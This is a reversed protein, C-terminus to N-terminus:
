RRILRPDITRRDRARVSIRTGRATLMDLLDPDVGQGTRAL